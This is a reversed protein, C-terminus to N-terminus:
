EAAATTYSITEPTTLPEASYTEVREDKIVGSWNLGFAFDYTNGDADVYCEADRPVDESQAEVADMSAPQQMPLLASPETNGAVINALSQQTHIDSMGAYYVLIADAMPEVESWIMCGVSSMKMVVITKCNEGVAGDVYKLLEYDAYNSAKDASQGTYSRDEEVEQTTVGYYGDTIEVIEVGNAIAEHANEATYEEYQISAPHYVGDEDVSSDTVPNSVAVLAYQCAAIEEEAARIVDNETYTGDEGTPEGVSDTVVNYYQSYVDVDACPEWSYTVTMEPAGAAGNPFSVETHSVYKYPIYISEKEAAADYAHITNDSNKLMVVSAEQSKTGLEKHEASWANAVANEKSIYPNDYLGVEMQTLFFRKAHEQMLALAQEEGVDEKMIEYGELAGEVNTTGGIQDCGVEFLRAFREGETLDEVGYTRTDDETIQWDTLIFGDYENGRLLNIKYESYAGAVQEGLSEDESYAIAYNPMVGGAKETVSDLNFAGDFFAVLHAAFNNGPFVTYKGADGHDNRGGESAGAGAFHKAIAVVSDDGWGLDNGEEDYTSQLGSVYAKALDRNLAPDESYTGSTRCWTSQTAIDIQPGLLMTVGVSRYDKSNQQAIEKALETDMTSALGNGDATGSIGNPDISITVPVGHGGNAEAYTQLANNWEVAKETNGENGASRTVGARGGAALYEEDVGVDSGFSSWGGHTLLPAIEEGTMQSALDAARTEDEERWDEYVDLEGDKDLDKFAYGDQEIITVGSDKSYGLTTGGENSVKIWGDQTEEQSWKEGGAAADGEAAYVATSSVMSVALGLALLRSMRKKM